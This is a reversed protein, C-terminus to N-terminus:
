WYNATSCLPRGRGKGNHSFRFVSTEGKRYFRGLLPSVGRRPNQSNRVNLIVPARVFFAGIEHKCTTVVSSPRYASVPSLCATGAADGAVANFSLRGFAKDNMAKNPARTAGPQTARNQHETRVGAARQAPAKAPDQIRPRPVTEDTDGM